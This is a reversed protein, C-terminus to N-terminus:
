WIHVVGSFKRFIVSFKWLCNGLGLRFVIFKFSWEWFSCRFTFRTAYSNKSFNKSFITGFNATMLMAKWWFAATPFSNLPPKVFICFSFLIEIKRFNNKRREYMQSLNFSTKIRKLCTSVKVWVNSVLQFKCENMQFLNFSASCMEHLNFSAIFCKLSESLNSIASM